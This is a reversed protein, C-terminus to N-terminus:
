LFCMTSLVTNLPDEYVTSTKRDTAKKRKGLFFMGVHICVSEERWFGVLALYTDSELLTFNINTCNTCMLVPVIGDM